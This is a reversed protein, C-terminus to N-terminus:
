AAGGSVEINVGTVYSSRDSLLWLVVDVVENVTGRRRMPVSSTMMEAVREEDPPFYHTHAAAQLAVQREWMKGPGIFAPAVSNVRIGHPALDKAASRTMGVIAAKSASYALMNPAGTVGAMSSMNVIAGEVEAAVMAAAASTMVNIAGTTNVAVVRAADDLPYRHTPAFAGQIGANNFVLDPPAVDTAVSEIAQQTAAADAVDFVSSLVIADNSANRCADVTAELRDAAAPHDAAVVAAGAEVLRIAATRGIDGAAGTVLGVRGAFSTSSLPERVEQTM